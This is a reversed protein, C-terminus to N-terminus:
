LHAGDDCTINHYERYSLCSVCGVEFDRCVIPRYEYNNCKMTERNFWHCPKKSAERDPENKLYDLVQDRLRDPLEYVEFGMFPPSGIELCCAGCAECSIVPLEM